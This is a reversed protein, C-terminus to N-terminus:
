NRDLGAAAALRAIPEVGDRPAHIMVLRDLRGAGAEIWKPDLGAFGSIELRGHRGHHATKAVDILRDLDPHGAQTNFGDAVAGALEAMRQGFGGVIIPPPPQPALFGRGSGLQQTPLKTPETEGTWVQRCVAIADALQQRRRGDDAVDTGLAQQERRYPTDPGGGAGMGLLVRGGSVDQLTAAMAALVGPRRNAVNLVLPGITVRSTRAALASLVTWGEHVQGAGHVEGALHDWTWLGNFGLDEAAMATELVAAWTTDFPDLLLDVLM